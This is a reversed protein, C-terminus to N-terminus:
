TCLRFILKVIAIGIILGCLGGGLAYLYFQMRSGVFYGEDSSTKSYNPYDKTCPNSVSVGEFDLVDNSEVFGGCLESIRKEMFKNKQSVVSRCWFTLSGVSGEILKQLRSIDVAVQPSKFDEFVIQGGAVPYVNVFCPLFVATMGVVWANRKKLLIGPFSRILSLIVFFLKFNQRQITNFFYQFKSFLFLIV